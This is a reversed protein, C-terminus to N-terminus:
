FFSRQGDPPAAVNYTRQVQSWTAMRTGNTSCVREPGRIVDGSKELEPLRRSVEHREMRIAAAIEASTHGPFTRVYSLITERHSAAKGSSEHQQHAIASPTTM